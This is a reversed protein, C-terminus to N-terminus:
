HPRRRGHQPPHKGVLRGSPEVHYIGFDGPLEDAHHVKLASLDHGVSAAHARATKEAEERSVERGGEFVRVTHLHVVRGDDSRYIAVVRTSVVKPMDGGSGYTM